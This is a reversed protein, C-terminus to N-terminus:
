RGYRVREMLKPKQPEIIENIWFRIKDFDVIDRFYEFFANFFDETHIDYESCFEFIKNIKMIDFCLNSVAINREVSEDYSYLHKSVNRELEKESSSKPVDNYVLCGNRNLMDDYYLVFYINEELNIRFQIKIHMSSVYQQLIYPHKFDRIRDALILCIRKLEDESCDNLAAQREKLSLDTFCLDKYESDRFVEFLVDDMELIDPNKETNRKNIIEDYTKIKKHSM